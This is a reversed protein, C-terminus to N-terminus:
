MGLRGFIKEIYADDLNFVVNNEDWEAPTYDRVWSTAAMEEYSNPAIIFSTLSVQWDPCQHALRPELDEALRKFLQLKPDNLGKSNRIGHPDIFVIQQRRGAIIWLIFDPYFAEGDASDFFNIGKGVSLNRLLYLEKGEFRAQNHQLYTRLDAVFKIESEELGPPAMKEVREEDKKLLPQYLHEDLHINPFKDVDQTYLEAAAEVLEKVREAFATQASGIKLTYEQFSVNADAGTLPVLELHDQEWGRVRRDYFVKLYKELVKIAVEELRKAGDFTRPALYGVPCLLEYSGKTIIDQLTEQTFSLAYLGKEDQKFSLMELYIHQWNLLPAFKKLETAADMGEVKDSMDTHTASSAAEVRPRFDLKVKRKPDVTVAITETFPANLRLLQLNREAFGDQLRIPVRVEEYDTEIGEAQLHQKFQAMYNARVGFINVTELLRIHPPLSGETLASSRKLSFGKGRLRVGRGFLQVIQSGEGKGINMLGMSSVRFSDWGEMFKRSGILVNVTSNSANLSNFLSGGMNDDGWPIQSAKLLEMLGPVDGINIVGFYGKDGASLGIEGAAGKLETVRLQDGPAARLVREVIGAYLEAASRRRERLAAFSGLFQDDLTKNGIHGMLLRSIREIWYLQRSFFQQFFQVVEEIDTLGIKNDSNKAGTVSHGVFVWLPPELNFARLGERNEDYIVCQEYFSLLNAVLIWDNFDNSEDAVNVIRYDKGYGDDYFFPYSYNLLIAKTYEELLPPRKRIDAGNVIEGFTASYEFTFSGKGVKARMDRQFEGSAGRHGEDVLILGYQEFEDVNVSVGGGKKNETLKTIELITVPLEEGFLGGAAEGYREAAIGSMRFEGQHQRSLGENPTILLIGGAEVGQRKRYYLYQWVNLHMILTKGSGTAMWFAVKELDEASFPRYMWGSQLLPKNEEHAFENLARLLEASDETLRDLLAETFLAALYQFYKFTVKQTRHRNMRDVYGKIRLDYEALKTLPILIGATAQLTHFFHTHGDEDDDQRVDHLKNRLAKFDTFGFQKCFYRNLILRNQLLPLRDAPLTGYSATPRAAPTKVTRTKAAPM